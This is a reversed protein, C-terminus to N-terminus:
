RQLAAEFVLVPSIDIEYQGKFGMTSGGAAGVEEATLGRSQHTDRMATLLTVILDLSAPTPNVCETADDGCAAKFARSAFIQQSITPVPRTAATLRAAAFGGIIQDYTTKYTAFTGASAGKSLGAFLTETKTNLDTLNKYLAQDYDPALQMTCGALIVVLVALILAVPASPQWHRVPSWRASRLEGAWSMSMVGKAM